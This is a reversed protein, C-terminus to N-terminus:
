RRENTMNIIFDPMECTFFWVICSSSFKLHIEFQKLITCSLCSMLLSKDTITQFPAGMILCELEFRKMIFSRSQQKWLFSRVFWQNSNLHTLFHLVLFYVKRLFDKFATAHPPKRNKKIRALYKKSPAFDHREVITVFSFMPNKWDWFGFTMQCWFLIFFFHHFYLWSGLGM